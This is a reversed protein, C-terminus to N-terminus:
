DFYSTVKPVVDVDDMSIMVFKKADPNKAIALRCLEPTQDRVYELASPENEIAARCIEVTQM